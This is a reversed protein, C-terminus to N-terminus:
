QVAAPVVPAPVPAPKKGFRVKLSQWFGVKETKQEERFDERAEKQEERFDKREEIAEKRADKVKEGLRLGPKNEVTPFGAEARAKSRVDAIQKAYDARLAVVKAELEKKLAAIKEETAKLIAKQADTLKETVVPTPSVTTVVTDTQAMAVGGGLLALAVPVIVLSKNMHM